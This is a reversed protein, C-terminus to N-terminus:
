LLNFKTAFVFVSKLRHLAYSIDKKRRHVTEPSHNRLLNKEENTENPKRFRKKQVAVVTLWGRNQQGLEFANKMSCM